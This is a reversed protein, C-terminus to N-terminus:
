NSKPNLIEDISVGTEEEIIKLSCGIANDWGKSYEENADTGGLEHVKRVIRKITERLLANEELLFDM